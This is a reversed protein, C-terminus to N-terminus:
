KGNLLRFVLKLELDTVDEEAADDFRKVLFNLETTLSTLEVLSTGILRTLPHHPLRWEARANISSGRTTREVDGLLNLTELLRKEAHFGFSSLNLEIRAVDLKSLERLPEAVRSELLNGAVQRVLEDTVGQSTATSPDLRTPDSAAFDDGLNRRLEEPTRGSLILTLTQSKDLGSSTGLDWTLQSLTGAISLTILHDQGSPDRYDAESSIELTPTQSPVRHFPSFEVRGTTRSFRPRVGPLRFTGREVHITDDFRPDRPTGTISVRGYLDINALNNVVSFKRVDVQLDLAADGLLPTTEWIPPTPAGSSTSPTLAEGLDFNRTYRGTTLEVVGGIRLKGHELAVNIADLSIVLDLTRQIRFTLADASATLSAKAVKWNRFAISGAIDRLTGEDDIKGGVGEIEIELDSASAGAFSVTGRDLAIERRLSRPLLRLQRGEGFKLEGSVTPTPGVGSLSLELSASGSAQAFTEPAFAMLMEGALEGQIIVAWARPTLGRFTVGGAVSLPATTRAFGDDVELSVGTLSLKGDSFDIRGGPLRLMADQGTLRLAVDELDLSVKFHPAVSTGSVEALLVVNGTTRDFFSGLLPQADRLDLRGTASLALKRESASGAVTLEGLPTSIRAPQTLTATTGDWSLQLPAAARLAMPTPVGDPGPVEGHIALDALDLTVSLNAMPDALATKVHVRGTAWVRTGPPAGLKVPDVFTDLEVQQVDAVLDLAYPARTGLTGALAIRGDHFTASFRIRGPGDPRVTLEGDGLYGGGAWTRSLRLIGDLTPADLTGGLTLGSSTRSEVTEIVADAPLEAGALRTIAALPLRSLRLEGGLRQSRDAHVAASLEGGGERRARAIICRGGSEAGTELCADVADKRVAVPATASCSLKGPARNMWVAVDGLTEGLAVVRDSCAWGTYTLRKPDPPGRLSVDASVRGTVTDALGCTRSLDINTAVARVPEFSPAPDVDVKGTVRLRGGLSTSRADDIIVKDGEYRIRGRLAGVCPVGSLAIDTQLKINDITGGLKFTGKGGTDRTPAPSPQAQRHRRTPHGRWRRPQARPRAKAKAAPAAKARPKQKVVGGQLLRQLAQASGFEYNGYCDNDDFRPLTSIDYMWCRLLRGKFGPITVQVGELLVKDLGKDLYIQGQELEMLGLRLAMKDISIGYKTDGKRRLAHFHGDLRTGVANALTPSLWPKMEIPKTIGIDSDVWFPSRDSGDGGWKASLRVAGGAGRAIFEDVSGEDVALDYVGILTDLELELPPDLMSLKYTLGTAKIAVSPYFVIPGTVEAELTVAEGGIDPDVSDRLMRGANEVTATVKWIGGYPTDWYDIMQGDLRVKAKNKTEVAVDFRLTNAVPDEPWGSPLQALRRVDISQVPFSYEGKPKWRGDKAQGYYLDVQGEGGRLQMSVYMKPVLPDSPDMFLFGKASVDAVASRFLYETGADNLPKARIELHVGQVEFDRLDWLPSSAAFVGARFGASRRGYFAAIISFVTSDYDHLPYPERVERLVVEGGHMRVKRLVFDHRGFMLAHLDLEATIRDTRAVTEGDADWIHVNRLTVPLWGGSAVKPLSSMPWEISSIAIRGRMRENMMACLNEALDPGEFHIRVVAVASALLVFLGLSIAAIWRRLRVTPRAHVLRGSVLM